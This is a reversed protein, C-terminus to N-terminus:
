NNSILLSYKENEIASYLVKYRCVQKTLKKEM